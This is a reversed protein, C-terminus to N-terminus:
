FPPSVVAVGGWLAVALCQNLLTASPPQNLALLTPVSASLLLAALLRADVKPAPMAPRLESPSSAPTAAFTM